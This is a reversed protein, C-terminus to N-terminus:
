EKLANGSRGDGPPPIANQLPYQLTMKWSFFRLLDGHNCAATTVSSWICQSFQYPRTQPVSLTKSFSVFCFSHELVSLILRPSLGIDSQYSASTLDSNPNFSSSNFHSLKNEKWEFEYEHGLSLGNQFDTKKGLVCEALTQSLSLIGLILCPDTKIQAQEKM